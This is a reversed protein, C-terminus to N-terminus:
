IGKKHHYFYELFRCYSTSNKKYFDTEFVKRYDGTKYALIFTKLFNINFYTYRIKEKKFLDKYFTLAAEM